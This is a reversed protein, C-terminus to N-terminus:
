ADRTRTTVALDNDATFVPRVETGGHTVAPHVDTKKRDATDGGIRGVPVEAGTATRLRLEWDTKERASEAHAAALAAYPVTLELHGAAPETFPVAVELGDSHRAVARAATIELPAPALLAVTVVATGTGTVVQEAEAHAPRSWARVTLNGETTTYPIWATVGDGDVRPPATVLASQEVLEAAVRRARRTGAAVFFADWRGSALSRGTRPLATRGRDDVPFDLARGRPDKRLRLVLRGPVAPTLTVTLGGDHGTVCRAAPRAAPAAPATGTRPAGRRGLLGRLRAGLGAPRAPTRGPRATASAATPRLDAFLDEYRRAVADPEYRAATVLARTAMRRRLEDDSMLTRLGDAIADVGGDLPVLLGDEGHSIIEAPGHPCDTAVVPVGCAMAEVITLGFSEYLSTVAAIAGKAWETEIPSVAGMLRVRDALGLRDIQERLAGRSPGRGYVRLRWDPFDCTLKAFADILRDYRKPDVLRGAAVITRSDGTSPAVRPPPSGNPIRLVRTAADPLAARYAAADAEAVPVFADLGPVARLQLARADPHRASLTSHEQGVRLYRTDGYHALYANLTPRTSIVVDADVSRLHEAMRRDSLLSVGTRWTPLFESPLSAEPRKTDAAGEREDILTEIPVRPDFTFSTTDRHRYLSTVRVTHRAALAASLTAVSRITGGIGYANNLLFVIKM